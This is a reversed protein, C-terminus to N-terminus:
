KSFKNKFVGVQMTIKKEKQKAFIHFELEHIKKRLNIYM